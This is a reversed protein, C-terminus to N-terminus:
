NQFIAPWDVGGERTIDVTGRDGYGNIYTLTLVPGNAGVVTYVFTDSYQDLGLSNLNGCEWKIGASGNTAPGDNYIQPYLGFSLDDINYEGSLPNSAIRNTWVTTGTIEGTVAQNVGGEGDGVSMEYQVYTHTGALSETIPCIKYLNVTNTPKSDITAGEVSVLNLILTREEGEVLNAFNGIIKVNANYQGAPIVLSAPDITYESPLATSSEDVEIVITRDQDSVTSVDVIVNAVDQGEGDGVAFNQADLRFSAISQGNVNDFTVTDEECSVFFATAFLFLAYKFINKKMKM